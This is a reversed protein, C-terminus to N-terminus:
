ITKFVVTKQFGAYPWIPDKQAQLSTSSSSVDLGSPIKMYVEESLDGHFFANNVDLQFVTWSRKVAPTLLCKITTLKVVPSFTETFSIGERQADGMIVLFLTRAPLYFFLIGLRTKKLLRLNM